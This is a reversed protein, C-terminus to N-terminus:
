PLLTEAYGTILEAPIEKGLAINDGVGAGYKESTILGKFALADLWDQAIKKECSVPKEPKM